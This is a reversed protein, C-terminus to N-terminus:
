HTAIEREIAAVAQQLRRLESDNTTSVDATANATKWSDNQRKAAKYDNTIRIQDHKLLRLSDALEMRQAGSASTYDANLKKAKKQFARVDKVAQAYTSAHPNRSRNDSKLRDERASIAALLKAREICRERQDPSVRSINGLYLSADERRIISQAQATGNVGITCIVFFGKATEKHDIVRLISGPPTRGILKGTLSYTRAGTAIIVGWEKANDASRIQPVVHDGPATPPQESTTAGPLSPMSPLTPMSNNSAYETSPRTPTAPTNSSFRHATPGTPAQLLLGEALPIDVDIDSLFRNLIFNSFMDPYVLAKEGQSSLETWTRPTHHPIANVHSRARDRDSLMIYARALQYDVRRALMPYAVAWRQALELEEIAAEPQQSELLVQTELVAHKILITRTLSIATLVFLTGLIARFVYGLLYRVSPSKM